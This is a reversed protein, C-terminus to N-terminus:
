WYIDFNAWDMQHVLGKLTVFMSHQVIFFYRQPYPMAVIVFRIKLATATTGYVSQEVLISAKMLFAKENLHWRVPKHHMITERPALHVLPLFQAEKLTLIGKPRLWKYDTSSPPM